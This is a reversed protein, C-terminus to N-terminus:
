RCPFKNEHTKNARYKLRGDCTWLLLDAAAARRMERALCQSNLYCKGIKTCQNNPDEAVLGGDTLATAAQALFHPGERPDPDTRGAMALGSVLCVEVASIFHALAFYIWQPFLGPKGGKGSVRMCGAKCHYALPDYRHQSVIRVIRQLPTGM